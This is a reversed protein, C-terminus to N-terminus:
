VLLIGMKVLKNNSSITKIPDQHKLLHAPQKFMDPYIFKVSIIEYKNNLDIAIWVAFNSFFNIMSIAIQTYKM